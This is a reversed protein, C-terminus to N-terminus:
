RCGPAVNADRLEQKATFVRALNQPATKQNNHPNPLSSHPATGKGHLARCNRACTRKSRHAFINRERCAARGSEQHAAPVAPVQQQAGFCPKPQRAFHRRHLVASQLSDRRFTGRIRVDTCRAPHLAAMLAILGTGTGIDLIRKGEVSGWAGLLVGDTGVKMACRDHRVSFQKFRFIDNSM